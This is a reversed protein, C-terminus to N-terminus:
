RGTVPNRLTKGKAFTDRDATVHASITLSTLLFFKAGWSLLTEATILGVAVVAGAAILAKDEKLAPSPETLSM